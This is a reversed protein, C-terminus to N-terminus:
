RPILYNSITSMGKMFQKWGLSCPAYPFPSVRIDLWTDTSFKMFATKHVTAKKLQM